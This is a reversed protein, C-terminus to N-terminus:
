RFSIRLARFAFSISNNGMPAFSIVKSHPM